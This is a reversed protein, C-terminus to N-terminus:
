DQRVGRSVGRSELWAKIGSNKHFEVIFDAAARRMAISTVEELHTTESIGVEIDSSDAIGWGDWSTVKEGTPAWIIAKYTIAVTTVGIIPWAAECGTFEAITLEVVEAEQDEQTLPPRSNVRFTGDFLGSFVLDFLKISTPGPHFVYTDFIYGKGTACEYGELEPSYYVGVTLPIADVLPPNQIPVDPEVSYTCGLLLSFIVVAGSLPRLMQNVM